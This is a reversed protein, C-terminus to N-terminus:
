IKFVYVETLIKVNNYFQILLKFLKWKKRDEENPKTDEHNQQRFSIFCAEQNM